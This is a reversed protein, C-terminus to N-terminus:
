NRLPNGLLIFLLGLAVRRSGRVLVSRTPDWFRNSPQHMKLALNSFRCWDLIVYSFHKATLNKYIKTQTGQNQSMNFIYGMPQMQTLPMLIWWRKLVNELKSGEKYWRGIMAVEVCGPSSKNWEWADHHVDGPLRLHPHIHLHSNKELPMTQLKPINVYKWWGNFSCVM